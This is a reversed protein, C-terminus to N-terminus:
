KILGLQRLMQPIEKAFLQWEDTTLNLSREGGGMPERWVLSVVRNKGDKINSLEYRFDPDFSSTLAAVKLLKPEDPLEDPVTVGSPPAPQCCTPSPKELYAAVDSIKGDMEKPWPPNVLKEPVAKEYVKGNFKVTERYEEASVHDGTNEPLKVPLSEGAKLEPVPERKEKLIGLKSRNMKLGKLNPPLKEHKEPANKKAWNKLDHWAQVPNLYGQAELYDFPHIGKAIAEILGDLMKMRNRREMERPDGKPVEPKGETLQATNRNLYQRQLNYWTARPTYSPWNVEIYGLVDGNAKEIELCKRAFAQKQEDTRKM